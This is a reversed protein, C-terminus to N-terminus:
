AFGGHCFWGGSLVAGHAFFLWLRDGEACTVRWYDRVGSRWEPDDLWWEPAIREPGEARACHLQRGRWRFVAPPTEARPAPPPAPATGPTVGDAPPAAAGPPAPAAAAAEAMGGPGPADGPALPYVPEPRWLRLPRPAPPAPWHDPAPSSWAAALCQASKEPLHSDGPTRRTIRELGIRAGIRGLLDDLPATDQLRARAAEGALIHGTPRRQQIPESRVAELRLMDIGFGAEIEQLKMALVPRLRDPAHSARALGAEVWQMTHDCRYAELRLVRAGRGAGRLRACLPPLLRDLAALMDDELGIPEPLTMRTAFVPPPAGPSVPEPAAGFAQDLRLVLGKGFRRALAARPQGALDGIRRLGLRMLNQCTEEDLRLARVPLPALAARMQGPPAIPGAATGQAPGRQPPAGGREWHRRKAARARTAHAEMEIADGSRHSQAGQGAYRALAWAAGVTDGIGARLTLGLAPAEEQLAELLAREGGFLHACGTIDLVLGTPPAEAVWPSVRGAWRRLVTLFAAEAQPNQRRTVLEPCMATADRLPQGPQLGAAEALESVSSLLQMQGADRVVAFPVEADAAGLRLLREAGLRPFWLSLIRRPPM